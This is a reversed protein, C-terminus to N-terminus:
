PTTVSKREGWISLSSVTIILLSIGAVISLFQTITFFPFLVTEYYIELNKMVKDVRDAALTPQYLEVEKSM